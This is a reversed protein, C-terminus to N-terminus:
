LGLFRGIGLVPSNVARVPDGASAGIWKPDDICEELDHMICIRSEGKVIRLAIHTESSVARGVVHHDEEQLLLMEERAELDLAVFCQLRLDHGRSEVKLSVGRFPPAVPDPEGVIVHGVLALEDL